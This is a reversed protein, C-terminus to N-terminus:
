LVQRDKAEQMVTTNVDTCLFILNSPMPVVCEVDNVPHQNTQERSPIKAQVLYDKFLFNRYLLHLGEWMLCLRILMKILLQLARPRKSRSGFSSCFLVM